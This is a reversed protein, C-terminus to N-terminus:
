TPKDVDDGVDDSAVSAIIQIKDDDTEEHSRGLVLDWEEVCRFHEIVKKQM